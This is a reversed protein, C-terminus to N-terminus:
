EGALSRSYGAPKVVILNLSGTRRRASGETVEGIAESLNETATECASTRRVGVMEGTVGNVEVNTAGPTGDDLLSATKWRGRFCAERAVVTLTGGGEHADWKM